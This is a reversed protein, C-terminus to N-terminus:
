PLLRRIWAVALIVVATEAFSFAAKILVFMLTDVPKVVGSRRAIAQARYVAFQHSRTIVHLAAFLISFAIAIIMWSHTASIGLVIGLGIAVLLSVTPSGWGTQVAATDRPGADAPERDAIRPKREPTTRAPAVAPAPVDPTRAQEDEPVREPETGPRTVSVLAVYRQRPHRPQEPYLFGIQGNAVLPRIADGVYADSRALLTSLERISLPAISCLDVMLRAFVSPDLRRRERAPRAVAELEPWVTQM